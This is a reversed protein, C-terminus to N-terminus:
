DLHIQQVSDSTLAEDGAHIVYLRTFGKERPGSFIGTVVRHLMEPPASVISGSGGYLLSPLTAFTDAGIAAAIADDTFGDGLPLVLPLDRPLAAVEPWTLNEYVIITPM